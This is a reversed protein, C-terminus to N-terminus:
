KQRREWQSVQVVGLSYPFASRVASFNHSPDGLRRFLQFSLM